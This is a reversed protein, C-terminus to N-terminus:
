VNFKIFLGLTDGYTMRGSTKSNCLIAAQEIWLDFDGPKTFSKTYSISEQLKM